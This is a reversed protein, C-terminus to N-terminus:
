RDLIAAAAQQLTGDMILAQGTCTRGWWDGYSNSLIVEGQEGLLKALYSSVRYWEYVEAPEANDRVAERWEDIIDSEIREICEARLEDLSMASLEKEDESDEEIGMLGYLHERYLEDKNPGDWDEWPDNTPREIGHDDLWERCQELDWDSPDAELNSVNDWSWEGVMDRPLEREAAGLMDSVLSSDCCYIERDALREAIEAIKISRTEEPTAPAWNDGHKVEFKDHKTERYTISSGGPWLQRTIPYAEM